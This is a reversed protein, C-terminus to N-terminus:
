RAVLPGLTSLGGWLTFSLLTLGILLVFSAAVIRLGTFFRRQRAKNQELWREVFRRGLIAAVGISSMAVAMGASIAIVMLVAPWLLDNAVGYLLVMLAGTCPVVGIAVSLFGFGAGVEATESHVCACVQGHDHGGSGLRVSRIAGVLMAAGILAIAAYSVLRVARFSAPSVGTTQRIAFDALVAVVIAALVHVIAIQTGFRVGRLLGGGEGVFYSVVLAKGHGPGLTHVVGYSFAVLLGFLFPLVSRRDRIDTMTRSFFVSVQAQANQWWSHDPGSTPVEVRALADSEATSYEDIRSTDLVYGATINASGDVLFLENRTEKARIRGTVWRPAFLGRDPIGEPAVVYVIQNSPPPPTHICAGVYPVLLFETVLDGSSELPLIYGPLKVRQDEFDPEEKSALESWDLERSETVGSRRFGPMASDAVTSLQPLLESRNWAVLDKAIYGSLEPYTELLVEYSAVIRDRLETRGETGHMSLAKVTELLEEQTRDPQQFYRQEIFSVAEAGELEIAAAAWAALNKTLGFREANRFSERFYRKDAEGSYARM